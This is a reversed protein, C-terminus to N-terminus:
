AALFLCQRSFLRNGRLEKSIIRGCGLGLISREMWDRRVGHGLLKLESNSGIKSFCITKMGRITDEEVVLGWSATLSNEILSLFNSKM